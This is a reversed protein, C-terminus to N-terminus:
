DKCQPDKLFNMYETEQVKYPRSKGILSSIKYDGVSANRERSSDKIGSEHCGHKGKIFQSSTQNDVGRVGSEKREKVVFSVIVDGHHKRNKVREEKKVEM